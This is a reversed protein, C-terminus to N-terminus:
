RRGAAEARGAGGRARRAGGRRVSARGSVRLRAAASRVAARRHVPASEPRRCSACACQAGRRTRTTRAAARRPAAGHPVSGLAIHERSPRRRRAAAWHDLAASPTRRTRLTCMDRVSKTQKALQLQYYSRVSSLEIHLYRTYSLIIIYM